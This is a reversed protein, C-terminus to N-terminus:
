QKLGEVIATIVAAAAADPTWYPIRYLEDNQDGEEWMGPKYTGIDLTTDFNTVVVTGGDPRPIVLASCMGGTQQMDGGVIARLRTLQAVDEELWIATGCKTCVGVGEGEPRMETVWQIDRKVNSGKTGDHCYRCLAEGWPTWVGPIAAIKKEVESM